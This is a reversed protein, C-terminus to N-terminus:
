LERRVNWRGSLVVTSVQSSIRESVAKKVSLTHTHTRTHTHTTNAYIYTSTDQEVTKVFALDCVFM